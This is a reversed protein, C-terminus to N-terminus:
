ELLLNGFSSLFYFLLGLSRVLEFPTHYSMKLELMTENTRFYLEIQNWLGGLGEVKRLLRMNILWIIYTM